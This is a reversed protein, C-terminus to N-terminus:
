CDVLARIRDCIEVMRERELAGARSTLLAKPIPRLNDFAAACDARLGNSPGLAIETPIRRVTRTVPAVIVTTLVPIASDRTVVLVPRRGADELEVWCVDGQRLEIM